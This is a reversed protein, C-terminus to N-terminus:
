HGDPPPPTVGPVYAPMSRFQDLKNKLKLGQIPPNSQKHVKTAPDGTFSGRSKYRRRWKASPAPFSLRERRRFSQTRKTFVNQCFPLLFSPLRSEYKEQVRNRKPPWGESEYRSYKESTSGSFCNSMLVSTLPLLPRELEKGGAHRSNLKSPM